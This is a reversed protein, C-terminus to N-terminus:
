VRVEAVGFAHKTTGDNDGSRYFLWLKGDEVLAHGNSMNDTEWAGSPTLIQRPPGAFTRLDASLPAVAWYADRVSGGSSFDSILGLWTPRGDLEIVNTTNWEIRWGYALWEAGFGLPRPDLTWDVADTSYWLAFRPSNTGRLLSYAVWGDGVRFPRFYGTHASPYESGSPVDAAIGQRTWTTGNTSTAYLTAQGAIGGSPSIQQYYMIFRSNPEDWVVSPTETESGSHTDQYVQGHITWPGTLSNAYALGVKGSGGAHDTSFWMYYNGLPSAIKGTVKMVWPWYITSFGAATTADTNFLPNGAYKSVTFRNGLRERVDRVRGYTASLAAIHTASGLESVGKARGWSVGKADLADGEYDGASLDATHVVEGGVSAPQGLTGSAVQTGAANHVVVPKGAAGPGFRFKYEPM